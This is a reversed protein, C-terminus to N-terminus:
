KQKKELKDIRTVLENIMDMLEPWAEFEHLEKCPHSNNELHKIREAVLPYKEHFKLDQKIIDIGLKEECWKDLKLLHPHLFKLAATKLLMTLLSQVVKTVITFM